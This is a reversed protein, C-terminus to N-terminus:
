NREIETITQTFQGNEELNGILVDSRDMKNCPYQDTYEVEFLRHIFPDFYDEM